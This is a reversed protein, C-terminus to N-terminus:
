EFRGGIMQGLKEATLKSAAIPDSVQGGSFVLVRDSYQMIEDLDSSMFLITTGTQCRAILQQWVWLTSEIDLGRTPHEMLLLNLPVPLLALQTRQQNGGSLREVHSNPKGRINFMAIAELANQHTSKWDIFLKQNPHRLIVHEHISLGRILGDKLRDAPSYGIGQKLYQAYPKQTMDLRDIAIKGRLPRTLGACLLLLLQQGSGELGALGIVEGRHATFDGMKLTLRDDKVVLNTLELMPQSQTTNPKIPPALEKGFILDILVSDPCPIEANGVIKGARMVTVRDCLEEVDELKHSVFIVSKGESALRRAAEFLATKQSASIGTTPEDLILTKVGLSLLRIMELQQREGVSLDSVRDDPNLSFNFAETLRLLEQRARDLNVLKLGSLFGKALVEGRGVVFNDLVSLPPFDLPDQHLMGVGSRIADAPTKINATQGDLLVSGSDRSIFGSLVKVITSKGAGNEGLLGHISGAQVTISVDDNALVQGFRKTIHQLEIQM